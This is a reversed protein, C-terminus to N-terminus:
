EALSPINQQQTIRLKMVTVVFLRSSPEAGFLNAYRLIKLKICTSYASVKEPPWGQSHESSFRHIWGSYPSSPFIQIISSKLNERRHSHLFDDEPVHRWKSITNVSTESYCIAELLSCVAAVQECQNMARPNRIGQLHLRYTWGFRRNLCYRCLAVEWFVANKM